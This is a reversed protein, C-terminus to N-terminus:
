PSSPGTTPTPTATEHLSYFWIDEGRRFLVLDFGRPPPITGEPSGLAILIGKGPMNVWTKQCPDYWKTEPSDGGGVVECDIYGGPYACLRMGELHLYPLGNEGYELWWSQWDSEYKFSSSEPRELDLIQKYTGDERIILTDDPKGPRSWGAAWTGVLDVEAFGEPASDCVSSQSKACAYLLFTFSLWVLTRKM